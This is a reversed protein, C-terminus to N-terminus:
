EPKWNIGFSTVELFNNASITKIIRKCIVVIEFRDLDKQSKCIKRLVTMAGSKTAWETAGKSKTVLVFNGVIPDNNRFKIFKKENVDWIRYVNPTDKIEGSEYQKIKNELLSVHSELESIYNRLNSVDENKM